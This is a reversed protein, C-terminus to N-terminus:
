GLIRQARICYYAFQRIKETPILGDAIRYLRAETKKMTKKLLSLEAQQRFCRQETQKLKKETEELAKATEKYLEEYMQSLKQM